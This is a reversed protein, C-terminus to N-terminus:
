RHKITDVGYVQITNIERGDATYYHEPPLAVARAIMLATSEVGEVSAVNQAYEQRFFSGDRRTIYLDINSLAM